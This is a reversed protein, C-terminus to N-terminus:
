LSGGGFKFMKFLKTQKKEKRFIRPLHEELPVSSSLVEWETQYIAWFLCFSPHAALAVGGLQSVGGGSVSMCVVFIGKKVIKIVFIEFWISGCKNQQTCSYYSGRWAYMLQFDINIEQHVDDFGSAECVHAPWINKQFIWEQWKLQILFVWCVLGLIFMPVPSVDGAM